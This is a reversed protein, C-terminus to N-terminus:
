ACCLNHQDLKLLRQRGAPLGKSETNGVTSWRGRDSMQDNILAKAGYQNTPTERRQARCRKIAFSWNPQHGVKLVEFIIFTMLRELM